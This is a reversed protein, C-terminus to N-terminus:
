PLANLPKARDLLQQWNESEIITGLMRRQPVSAEIISVTERDGSSSDGDSLASIRMTLVKREPDYTKEMVRSRPPSIRVLNAGDVGSLYAGTDDESNLVGDGNTDATAIEWYLTGEPPFRDIQEDEQRSDKRSLPYEMQHILASQPLLARVEGSRRDRILVGGAVSMEGIQSYGCGTLGSEYNDSSAFGKEARMALAKGGIVIKDVAVGILQYPTGLIAVPLCPDAKIGPASRPGGPDDVIEVPVGVQGRPSLSVVFTVIGIAGMVVVGSGIVAWVVQNYREINVRISM